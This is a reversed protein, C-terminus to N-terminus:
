QRRTPPRCHLASGHLTWGRHVAPHVASAQFRIRLGGVYYHRATLNGISPLVFANASTANNGFLFRSISSTRLYFEVSLFDSLHGSM